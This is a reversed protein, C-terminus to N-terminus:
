LNGDLRPDWCQSMLSRGKGDTDREILSVTNLPRQWHLVSQIVYESIPIEHGFCNCLVAGSPFTSTDIREYGAAMVQWM